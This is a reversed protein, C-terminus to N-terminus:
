AKCKNPLSVNLGIHLVHYPIDAKRLREEVDGYLVLEESEFREFGASIQGLRKRLSSLYDEEFGMWNRPFGHLDPSFRPFHFRDPAYYRHEEVSLNERVRPGHPQGHDRSLPPTLIVRSPKM